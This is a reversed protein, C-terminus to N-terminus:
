SREEASRVIASWITRTGNSRSQVFARKGLQRLAQRAEKPTLGTADTIDNASLERGTHTLISLVARQQEGVTGGRWTRPKPQSEPLAHTERCRQCLFAFTKNVADVIYRGCSRERRCRECPSMDPCRVTPKKM